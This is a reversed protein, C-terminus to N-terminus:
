VGAWFNAWQWGGHFEWGDWSKVIWLAVVVAVAASEEPGSGRYRTEAARCIGNLRSSRRKDNDRAQRFGNIERPQLQM